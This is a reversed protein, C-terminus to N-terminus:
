DLFELDEQGPPPRDHPMLDNLGRFSIDPSVNVLNTVHSTYLCAYDQVQQAWRSNQHGAKFLRGWASHFAAHHRERAEKLQTSIVRQEDRLSLLEADFETAEEEDQEREEHLRQIHLSLYVIRADLRARECRLEEIERALTATRAAAVMEDRVEPVILLTRWGLTRKSRLIDSYMHDGVYMLHGGSRLQLLSHLHNWNGGQFINSQRLAEEAHNPGGMEINVLSADERVQFIPLYPDLLFGPKRGGCIVIDFYSAWEPGLLYRMVVDTYDYLSNTLIFTQKGGRRLQTLMRSLKPSSHIYKSPQAAVADKIAGDCHCLDVARRVNKYITAYSQPMEDPHEDKYTVLQCFLAADVLLFATDATAFDPPTFTPQTEFNESYVLKREAASMKTLGHYAVKVYKHRDLKILNGRIKDIVLGRQYAYPDYQFDAIAAPYGMGLLKSIAGDYALLDFTEPIYEALTYDMDFGIAQIQKMNLARNCFVEYGVNSAADEDEAVTSGEPPPMCMSSRPSCAFRHARPGANGALALGLAAASFCAAM